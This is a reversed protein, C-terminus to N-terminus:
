QRFLFPEFFQNVNALSYGGISTGPARVGHLALDLRRPDRGEEDQRTARGNHAGDSPEFAVWKRGVAVALERRFADLRLM